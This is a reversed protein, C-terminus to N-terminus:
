DDALSILSSLRLNQIGTESAPIETNIPLYKTLASRSETLFSSFPLPIPRAFSNCVMRAIEHCTMFDQTSADSCSAVKEQKALPKPLNWVVSILKRLSYFTM